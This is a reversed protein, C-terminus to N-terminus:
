KMRTSIGATIVVGQPNGSFDAHVVALLPVPSGSLMLIGEANSMNMLPNERDAARATPWPVASSGHYTDPSGGGYAIDRTATPSSSSTVGSTKMHKLILNQLSIIRSTALSLITPTTGRGGDNGAPRFLTVITRYRTSCRSPTHKEVYGRELNSYSAILTGICFDDHFDTVAVFWVVLVFLTKEQLNM